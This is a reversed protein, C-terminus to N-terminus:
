DLVSFICVGELVMFWFMLFPNPQRDSVHCGFISFFNYISVMQKLPPDTPGILVSLPTDKILSIIKSMSPHLKKSIVKILINITPTKCCLGAHAM